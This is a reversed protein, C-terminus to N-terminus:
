FSYNCLFYVMGNELGLVLAIFRPFRLFNYSFIWDIVQKVALKITCDRVILMVFM